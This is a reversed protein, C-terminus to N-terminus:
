VKERSVVVMQSHLRRLRYQTHRLMLAQLIYQLGQLLEKRLVAALSYRARLSEGDGRLAIFSCNKGLFVSLITSASSHEKISYTLLQEGCHM